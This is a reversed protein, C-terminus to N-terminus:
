LKFGLCCLIVTLFQHILHIDDVSQYLLQHYKSDRGKPLRKLTSENIHLIAADFQIYCITTAMTTESANTFPHTYTILLWPLSNHQINSIPENLLMREIRYYYFLSSLQFNIEQVEQLKSAFLTRETLHVEIISPLYVHSPLKQQCACIMSILNRLTLIETVELQLNQSNFFFYCCCGLSDISYFLFLFVSLSVSIDLLM